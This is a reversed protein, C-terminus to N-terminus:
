GNGKIEEPRPDRIGPINLAGMCVDLGDGTLSAIHVGGSVQDVIADATHDLWALEIHLEGRNLVHGRERLKTLLTEQNAMYSANEFLIMLILLRVDPRNNAM